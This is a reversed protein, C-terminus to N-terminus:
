DAIATNILKSPFTLSGDQKYRWVKAGANGTIQFIYDDTLNASVIDEEVGGAFELLSWYEATGLASDGYLALQSSIETGSPAVELMGRRNGNSPQVYIARRSGDAAEIITYNTTTLKSIQTNIATIFDDSVQSLKRLKGEVM